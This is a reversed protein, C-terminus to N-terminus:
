GPRTDAVSERKAAVVLSRLLLGERIGTLMGTGREHDEDFVADGQQARLESELRTHADVMAVCADRFASTVDDDRLVEFGTRRLLDAPTAPAAVDSPGLDAARRTEAPSLGEPTHIVYGALRGQARLM